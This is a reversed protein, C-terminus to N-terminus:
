SIVVNRWELYNNIKKIQYANKIIVVLCFLWSIMFICIIKMKELNNDLYLGLLIYFCVLCLYVLVNFVSIISEDLNKESFEEHQLVSYSKKNYYCFGLFNMSQFLVLLLMINVWKLFGLVSSIKLYVITIILLLLLLNIMIYYFINMKEYKEFGQKLFLTLLALVILISYIPLFYVFSGVYLKNFDYGILKVNILSIFIMSLTFIFIGLIKIIIKALDNSYKLYNNKFEFIINLILIPILLLIMSYIGPSVNFPRFFILFSYIIGVLAIYILSKHFNYDAQIKLSLCDKQINKIILDDIRKEIEQSINIKSNPFDDM